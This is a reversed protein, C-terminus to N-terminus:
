KGNGTIISLLRALTTRMERRDVIMDVAGHALLFESRQFGEPLDERVTEKIVRPGAFGILADPEAIIIDGILAFSAAVGGTTPDTLVNIHPLGKKGLRDLSATTKAMQLLSMMGEQMRAGGSATFSIFPLGLLTAKEVGRVFREGAVSGMSGGMFHFDFIVAVVESGMIHGHWAAASERRADGKQARELRESYPESDVFGLFDVPRLDTAIEVAAPEEDFLSTARQVATLRHHYDCHACVWCNKRLQEAYIATQCKGCKEWIGESISSQTATKKKVGPLINTFWNM